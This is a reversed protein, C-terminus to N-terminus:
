TALLLSWAPFMLLPLPVVSVRGQQEAGGGRSIFADTFGDIFRSLFRMCPNWLIRLFGVFLDGGFDNLPASFGAADGADVFKIHNHLSGLACARYRM